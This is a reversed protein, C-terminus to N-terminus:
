RQVVDGERNDFVDNGSPEAETKKLLVGVRSGFVSNERIDSTGVTDVYIGYRVNNGLSNAHVENDAAESVLRIGDQGNSLVVNREIRNGASTQGIGIGSEGNHYVRNGHVVNGASENVNIGQAVNRFTENNEVTNRDSRQFLVIGHHANRYVVNDRIVSDTCDEALIIGHKGNDHVVNREIVLNRSATHPDVGYLVSDHIENDTVQLGDIEYTYLGFYLHSVVSHRLGGGTGANRWSLGYSEVAGFGLFRLESWDVAMQGGDRALVYARGDTYETDARGAAEDWSTVCSGAVDLRGGLVKVAVIRGADSRLGLWQVEPAAVRVATGPLLVLDAGLLWRGPAVERLAAPDAVARSLAALGIGAGQSVTVTGAARDFTAAVPGPPEPASATLGGLRALEPQRTCPQAPDVPVPGAVARATFATASRGCGAAVGSLVLVAVLCRV